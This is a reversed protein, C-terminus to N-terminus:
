SFIIRNFMSIATEDFENNLIKILPKLIESNQWKMIDDRSRKRCFSAQPALVDDLYIKLDYDLM